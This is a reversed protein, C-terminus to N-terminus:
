QGQRCDSHGAVPAVARSKGLGDDAALARARTGRAGCLRATWQGAPSAQMVSLPDPVDDFATLFTEM